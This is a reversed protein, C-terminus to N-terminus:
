IEAMLLDVAEAVLEMREQEDQPLLTSTWVQVGTARNRALVYLATRWRKPTDPIGHIINGIRQAMEGRADTEMAGNDTDYQRSARWGITSPCETPFGQVPIWGSEYRWWFVLADLAAQHPDDRKV